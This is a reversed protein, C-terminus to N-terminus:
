EVIRVAAPVGVKRCVGFRVLGAGHVVMGPIFTRGTRGLSFLNTRDGCLYVMCALDVVACHMYCAEFGETPGICWECAAAVKDCGVALGASRLPGDVDALSGGLHM